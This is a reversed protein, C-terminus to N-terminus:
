TRPRGQLRDRLRDYIGVVPAAMTLLPPQDPAHPHARTPARRKGDDIEAGLEQLAQEDSAARVRPMLDDEEERVHETLDEALRQLLERESPDGASVHDLSVLDHKVAQHGVLQQDVLQVGDGTGAGDSLLRRAFPYFLTEELAAHKSVERILIDVVGRRQADTAAIDYDRLLQEVIRHDHSLLEIADM